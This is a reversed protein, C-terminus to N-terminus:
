VSVAEEPENTEAVLLVKEGVPGPVPVLNIKVVSGDLEAVPPVANAVCGATEMSSAPPLTTGDLVVFTVSVAV